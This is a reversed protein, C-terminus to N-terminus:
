PRQDGQKLSKEARLVIRCRFSFVWINLNAHGDKKISVLIKGNSSRVEKVAGLCGEYHKHQSGSQEFVIIDGKRPKMQRYIRLITETKPWLSRKAGIIM